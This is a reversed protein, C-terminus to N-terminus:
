QSEGPPLIRDAVWQPTADTRTLVVLYEGANTPVHVRSVSAKSAVDFRATGTVSTVPVNMPDVWEYDAQAKGTLLPRLTPWWRTASATTPRAFRKMVTTAVTVADAQSKTDWVLTSAPSPAVTSGDDLLEAADTPAPRLPDVTSPPETVTVRTSPQDGGSAGCGLLLLTLAAALLAVGTRHTTWGRSPPSSPSSWGTAPVVNAPPTLGPRAEVVVSAAAMDRIPAAEATKSDVEARLADASDNNLNEPEYVREAALALLAWADLALSQTPSLREFDEVDLVLWRGLDDVVYSLRPKQRSTAECPTANSDDPHRDTHGLDPASM